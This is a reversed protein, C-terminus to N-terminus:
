FGKQKNDVPETAVDPNQNAVKPESTESNSWASDNEPPFKQEASESNLTSESFGNSESKELNIKPFSGYNHNFPPAIENYNKVFSAQEGKAKSETLHNMMTRIDRMKNIRGALDVIKIKSNALQKEKEACEKVVKEYAEDSMQKRTILQKYEIRLAEFRDEEGKLRTLHEKIHGKLVAVETSMNSRDTTAKNLCKRVSELDSKLVDNDSSLSICLKCVDIFSQASINVKQDSSEVKEMFSVLDEVSLHEPIELKQVKEASTEAEVKDSVDASKSSEGKVTKAPVSEEEEDRKTMVIDDNACAYALYDFNSEVYDDVVGHDMIEALYAQDKDSAGSTAWNYTGDQQVVLARSNDVAGSNQNGVTNGQRSSSQGSISGSQNYNQRGIPSNNDRRPRQCERAFHGFGDCNFCKVKSKDFGLRGENVKRGTRDTFRQVRLTLMALQWNLDMEEIDDPDIQKYDERVVDPNILKGGVWKEHAGVFAATLARETSFLHGICYM